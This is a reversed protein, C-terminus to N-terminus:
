SNEGEISKKTVESKTLESFNKLTFEKYFYGNENMWTEIDKGQSNREYLEIADSDCIICSSVGVVKSM